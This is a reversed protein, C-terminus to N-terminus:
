ELVVGLQRAATIIQNSIAADNAFEAV